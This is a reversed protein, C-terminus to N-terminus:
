NLLLTVYLMEGDAADFILAASQEQYNCFSQIGFKPQYYQVTRQLVM